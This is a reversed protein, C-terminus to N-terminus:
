QALALEAEFEAQRQAYVGHPDEVGALRGAVHYGVYLWDADFAGGDMTPVAAIATTVWEGLSPEYRYAIGDHTFRDMSDPPRDYEDETLVHYLVDAWINDGEYANLRDLVETETM